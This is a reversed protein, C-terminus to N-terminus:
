LAFGLFTKVWTTAKKNSTYYLIHAHNVPSLLCVGSSLDSVGFWSAVNDKKGVLGGM